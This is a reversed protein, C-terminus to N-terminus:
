DILALAGIQLSKNGSLPDCSLSQGIHKSLYRLSFLLVQAFLFYYLRTKPHADVLLAKYFCLTSDSREPDDALEDREVDGMKAGDVVDEEVDREDDFEERVEELDELDEDASDRVEVEDEADFNVYEEDSDVSELFFCTLFCWLQHAEFDFALSVCSFCCALDEFNEDFKRVFNAMLSFRIALSTGALSFHLISLTLM